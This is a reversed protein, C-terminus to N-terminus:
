NYAATVDFTASYVGDVTAADVTITGGFGFAGTGDALLTVSAPADATFAVTNGAGDDLSAPATYSIDVGQLGVGAITFSGPTPATCTLNAGCTSGAGSQTVVVDSSTLGSGMTITGFDLDSVKTLELPKVITATATFPEVSQAMAPSAFLGTAATAALAAKFLTKTM